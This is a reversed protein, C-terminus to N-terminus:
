SSRLLDDIFVYLPVDILADIPLKQQLRHEILDKLVQLRRKETGSFSHKPNVIYLTNRTTKLLLGVKVLKGIYKAASSPEFSNKTSTVRNIFDGFAVRLGNDIAIINNDDMRECLFDYFAREGKSLQLFKHQANFYHRCGGNVFGVKRKTRQHTTPHTFSVEVLTKKVARM